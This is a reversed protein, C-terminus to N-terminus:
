NFLSPRLSKGRPRELEEYRDIYRCFSRDTVVEEDQTLDGIEMRYLSRRIKDEQCGTVMRDTEYAVEMTVEENGSLHHTVAGSLFWLFM